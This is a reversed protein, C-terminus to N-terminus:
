FNGSALETLVAKLDRDFQKLSAMGQSSLKMNKALTPLVHPLRQVRVTTQVRRKLCPWGARRLYRTTPCDILPM